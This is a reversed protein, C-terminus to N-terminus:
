TTERVALGFALPKLPLQRGLLGPSLLAFANYAQDRQPNQVSTLGLTVALPTDDFGVVRLQGPVDLGRRRAESLIGAAAYDNACVIAQPLAGRATEERMSASSDACRAAGGSGAARTGDVRAAEGSDALRAPGAQEPKGSDEPGATDAAAEGTEASRKRTPAGAEKEDITRPKRGTEEEAGLLRRVVNQGEELSYVGSFYWDSRVPLGRERMLDEYAQRRRRTNLSSPRGFANAIRTVGSELLSEIALRYGEYQDMAVSPIDPRDMRQWSVIPGYKGYSSVVSEENVCTLIMLGDVRKRKLDEFAQLERKADSGTTYVITQFGHAAAAEVFSTMFPLIIENIEATIMGIQLTQGRSLSVANRNPVYDMERIVRLIKERTEPSVHRSENLVRSVTAKSFGSIKAIQELNSM